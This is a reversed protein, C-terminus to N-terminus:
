EATGLATTFLRFALRFGDCFAHEAVFDTYESYCDSLACLREKGNADLAKDLRIRNEEILRVLNKIEPDDTGSKESPHVQGYWLDVLLNDM